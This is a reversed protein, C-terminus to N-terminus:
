GQYQCQCHRLRWNQKNPPNLCIYLNDKELETCWMQTTSIIAIIISGGVEFTIIPIIGVITNNDTSYLWNYAIIPTLSSRSWSLDNTQVVKVIVIISKCMYAYYKFQININWITKGKDPILHLSLAKDVVITINTRWGLTCWRCFPLQHKARLHLIVISYSCNM